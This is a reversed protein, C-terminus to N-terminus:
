IEIDYKNELFNDVIDWISDDNAIKVEHYMWENGGINVNVRAVTSVQIDWKCVKPKSM